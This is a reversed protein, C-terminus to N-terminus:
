VWLEVLEPELTIVKIESGNEDNLIIDSKMIIIDNNNM